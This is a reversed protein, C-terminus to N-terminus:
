SENETESAGLMTGMQKTFMDGIDQSKRPWWFILVNKLFTGTRCDETLSM